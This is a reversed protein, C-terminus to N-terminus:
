SPQAPWRKLKERGNLPRAASHQADGTIKWAGVTETKIKTAASAVSQQLQAYNVIECQVRDSESRLFEIMEQLESILQELKEATKETDGKIQAPLDALASKVSPANVSLLNEEASSTPTNMLTKRGAPKRRIIELGAHNELLTLSRNVASPFAGDLRRRFIAAASQLNCGSKEGDRACKPCDLLMDCQPKSCLNAAPSAKEGFDTEESKFSKCHRQRGM